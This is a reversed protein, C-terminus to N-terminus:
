APVTAPVTASPLRRGTAADHTGRWDDIYTDLFQSMACAECRHSVIVYPYLDDPPYFTRLYPQGPPIVCHNSHCRHEASALRVTPYGNTM